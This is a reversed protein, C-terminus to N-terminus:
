KAKCDSVVEIMDKSTKLLESAMTTCLLLVTTELDYTYNGIKDRMTAIARLEASASSERCSSHSQSQRTQDNGFAMSRLVAACGNKTPLTFQVIVSESVVHRLQLYRGSSTPNSGSATPLLPPSKGIEKFAISSSNAFKQWDLEGCIIAGSSELWYVNDWVGSIQLEAKAWGSDSRYLRKVVPTASLKMDGSLKRGSGQEYQYHICRERSLETIRTALQRDSQNLSSDSALDASACGILFTAMLM